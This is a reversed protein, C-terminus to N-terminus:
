GAWSEAEEDTEKRKQTDMIKFLKTNTPFKYQFTLVFKGNFLLGNGYNEKGGTSIFKLQADTVGFMVQLNQRDIEDQMYLFIGFSTNRYIARADESALLDETSQTIGTLVGKWKRAMRWIKAVNEASSPIRLLLHFEDIDIWTYIGRKFNAKMRNQVDNLCIHLGLPLMGSTLQMMDFVVLKKDTDINTRRSFIDFSGRAYRELYTMVDEAQENGIEELEAYLDTLTPMMTRDITAGDKRKSMDEIYSKYIHRVARDVVSRVSSSLNGESMFDLMTMIFDSKAAIPDGEDKDNTLDLDLPNIFSRGGTKLEVRAGKFAEVLPAYEGQPDFVFVQADPKNLLVSIMECKVAHSKGSGSSGFVLGNYNTGTLRDFLIMSHSVGNLGYFIANKQNVEKTKFPVFVSATEGTHLRDVFLDNRCLPLCTNFGFEQQGMITKLACSKKKAITKIEATVDELEAKTDAFLTVTVTVFMIKEDRNTIDELLETAGQIASSTEPNTTDTVYGAALASKSKQAESGKLDALRGKVLKVGKDVAYGEYNISILMDCSVDTLLSLFDSSLTNATRELYLTRAFKNDGLIFYHRPAFDIGSPGITDKISVGMKELDSLAYANGNKKEKADHQMEEILQLRYDFDQNYIAYLLGIRDLAKMPSVIQGTLEKIGNAVQTDIRKLTDAAHDLSTDEIAVTLYRDQAMNNRGESLKNVLVTNMEKRLQNLGDNRPPMKINELTKRKDVRHNFITFQWKTDENFSNLFENLRHVVELQANDSILQFNIDDIAYQKTFVGARTEMIGSPTIGRFPLSEAVTKPLKEIRFKQSAKKKLLGISPFKM